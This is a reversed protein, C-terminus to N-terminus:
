INSVEQNKAMEIKSATKEELDYHQSFCNYKNAVQWVFLYKFFIVYEFKWIYNLIKIMKTLYNFELIILDINLKHKKSHATM